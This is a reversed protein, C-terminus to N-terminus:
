KLVFIVEYGLARYHQITANSANISLYVRKM